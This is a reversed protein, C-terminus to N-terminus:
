MKDIEDFFWSNILFALAMALFCFLGTAIVGLAIDLYLTFHLDFMDLTIASFFGVFTLAVGMIKLVQWFTTSLLWM